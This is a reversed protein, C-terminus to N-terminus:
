TGPYGAGVATATQCQCGSPPSNRSGYAAPVSLVARLARKMALEAADVTRVVSWPPCRATSRMPVCQGARGHTHFRLYVTNSRCGACHEVPTESHTTLLRVHAPFNEDLSHGSARSYSSRLKVTPIPPGTPLPLVAKTCCSHRHKRSLYLMAHTPRSARRQHRHLSIRRPLHTVLSIKVRSSASNKSRCATRGSSRTSATSVPPQGCAAM